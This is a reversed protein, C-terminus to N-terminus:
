ATATMLAGSLEMWFLWAQYGAQYVYLFSNFDSNKIPIDVVFPWHIEWYTEIYWIGM